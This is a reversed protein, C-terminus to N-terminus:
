DVNANNDVVITETGYSGDPLIITKTIIKPKQDEEPLAQKQEETQEQFIPLTGINTQIAEFADDIQQQTSSYEGIIWIAVRLVM